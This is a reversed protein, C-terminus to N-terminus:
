FSSGLLARVDVLMFLLLAATVALALALYSWRRAHRLRWLYRVNRTLSFIALGGLVLMVWSPISAAIGIWPLVFPLVVYQVTCRLASVLLGFSLARQAPAPLPSRPERHSRLDGSDAESENRIIQASV